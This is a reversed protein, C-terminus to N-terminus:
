RGKVKPTARWERLPRGEAQAIMRWMRPLALMGGVLCACSVVYFGDVTTSCSGGAAACAAGAGRAAHEEMNLCDGDLVAKREASVGGIECVARTTWDMLAFMAPKPISIGVNAVTNLLTLYTGSISPDSIKAFLAGLSTFMLTSSFSYSISIALLTAYRLPAAALEPAPGGSPFAAIFSTMAAATGVRMVMGWGFAHAVGKKQAWVGALVASLLECPFQVVYLGSLTERSVGKGLLKLSGAQEAPIVPLRYAVLLVALHWLAPLRLVGLLQAYAGKVQTWEPAETGHRGAGSDSREPVFLVVATVVLYLCGVIRLFTSLPLVPTDSRAAADRLWSNCFAADNLALFVTFSSFYGINMGVTQCMSTHEVNAPSLLELAWGDVAIDQTAALLVLVFFLATVAVVDSADVFAQVRDALAFMLLGSVIQMPVIWCRRRGLHPLHLTDVIPSWLLKFSYPYGAISFLGIKTLSTSSQLLFPISGASLGLPLGQLAYLVVLLAM